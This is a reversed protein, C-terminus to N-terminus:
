TPTMKRCNPQTPVHLLNHNATHKQCLIHALDKLQSLTQTLSPRDGTSFQVRSISEGVLILMGGDFSLM